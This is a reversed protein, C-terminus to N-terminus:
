ATSKKTAKAKPRQTASKQTAKSTSKAAAPKKPAKKSSAKKADKKQMSTKKASAKKAAATKSASKTPSKKSAVKKATPKNTAGKKAPTKKASTKENKKTTAKKTTLKEASPKKATTKKATSKRDVPKTAAKKVTDKKPAAKTLEKSLKFSGSAGTGKTQQFSGSAVGRRLALKLHVGATKEDGVKYSALIFKLIAQRSSGNRDKLAKIADVVMESYKPHAAAKKKYAAKAVTKRWLLLINRSTAQSSRGTQLLWALQGESRVLSGTQSRKKANASTSALKKRGRGQVLCPRQVQPNGAKKIAEEELLKRQLTQYDEEDDSKESRNQRKRKNEVKEKRLSKKHRQSEQDLGKGAKKLPVKKRWKRPSHGRRTECLKKKQGKENRTKGTRREATTKTAAKALIHKRQQHSAPGQGTQRKM